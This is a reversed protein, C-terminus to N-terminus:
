SNAVKHDVENDLARTGFLRQLCLAGQEVFEVEDKYGDELLLPRVVPRGEDVFDDGGAM